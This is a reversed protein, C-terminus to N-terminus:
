VDGVGVIEASRRRVQASLGGRTLAVLDALRVAAHGAITQTQVRAARMHRRLTTPQVGVFAAAHDVSIWRQEVQEDMWCMLFRTQAFTAAAIYDRRTTESSAHDVRRAALAIAGEGRVYPMALSPLNATPMGTEVAIGYVADLTVGTKRLSHTHLGAHALQRSFARGLAILAAPNAGCHFLSVDQGTRESEARCAIVRASLLAEMGPLAPTMSTLVVGRQRVSPSKSKSDSRDVFIAELSPDIHSCRRSLAESLRLRYDVQLIFLLQMDEARQALANARRHNGLRHWIGAVEARGPLYEPDRMLVGYRGAYWLPARVNHKDLYAAVRAALSWRQMCTSDAYDAADMADKLMRVSCDRLPTDGCARLVFSVGSLQTLITNVRTRHGATRAMWLVCELLVIANARVVSGSLAHGSWLEDDLLIRELATDPAIGLRNRMGAIQQQIAALLANRRAQVTAGSMRWQKESSRIVSLATQVDALLTARASQTHLKPRPPVAAPLTPLTGPSYNPWLLQIWEDLAASEQALPLWPCSRDLHQVLEDPRGAVDRLWAGAMDRIISPDYGHQRLWASPDTLSQRQVVLHCCAIFAADDLVMDHYAAETGEVRHRLYPYALPTGHDDHWHIDPIQDFLDLAEPWLLGSFLCLVTAAAPHEDGREVILLCDIAMSRLAYGTADPHDKLRMLYGDKLAVPRTPFAVRPSSPACLGTDRLIHDLRVIVRRLHMATRDRSGSARRARVFLKLLVPQWGDPGPVQPLRLLLNAVVSADKLGSARLRTAAAHLGNKEQQDDERMM